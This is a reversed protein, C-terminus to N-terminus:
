RAVVRMSRVIRSGIAGDIALYRRICFTPGVVSV